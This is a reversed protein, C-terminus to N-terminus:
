KCLQYPIYEYKIQIHTKAGSLATHRVATKSACSLSQMGPKIVWDASLATAVIARQHMEVLHPWELTSHQSQVGRRLQLSRSFNRHSFCSDVLGPSIPVHLIYQRRRWSGCRSTENWHIHTLTYQLTLLWVFGTIWQEYTSNQRSERREEGGEKEVKAESQSKFVPRDVM